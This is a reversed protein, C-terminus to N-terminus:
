GARAQLVGVSVDADVVEAELAVVDLLLLLPDLAGASLEKEIEAIRVVVVELALEAIRVSDDEVDVVFAPRQGLALDFAFLGFAFFGFPVCFRGHLCFGFRGGLLLRLSLLSFLRAKGYPPLIFRSRIAAARTM